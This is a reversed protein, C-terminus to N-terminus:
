PQYFTIFKAAKYTIITVPSWGIVALAIALPTPMMESPLSVTSSMAARRLMGTLWTLGLHALNVSFHVSFLYVAKLLVGLYSNYAQVTKTWPHWLRHSEHSRGSPNTEPGSPRCRSSDCLSRTRWFRGVASVWWQLLTGSVPQLM